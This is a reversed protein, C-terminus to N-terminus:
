PLGPDEGFPSSMEDVVSSDIGPRDTQKRKVNAGPGLHLFSSGVEWSELDAGEVAQGQGDDSPAGRENARDGCRPGLDDVLVPNPTQEVAQHASATLRHRIRHRNMLKIAESIDSKRSLSFVDKTMFKSIFM